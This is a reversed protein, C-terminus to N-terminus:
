PIFLYEGYRTTPTLIATIKTALAKTHVFKARGFGSGTAHVISAFNHGSPDATPLVPGAHSNAGHGDGAALTGM